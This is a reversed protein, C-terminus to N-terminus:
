DGNHRHLGVTSVAVVLAMKKEDNAGKTMMISHNKLFDFYEEDTMDDIVFAFGKGKDLVITESNGNKGPCTM